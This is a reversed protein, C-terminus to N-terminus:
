VHLREKKREKKEKREFNIGFKKIVLKWKIMLILSSKSKFFIVRTTEDNKCYTTYIKELEDLFFTSCEKKKRLWQIEKKKIWFRYYSEHYSHRLYEFHQWKFHSRFSALWVYFCIIVNEYEFWLDFFYYHYLRLM